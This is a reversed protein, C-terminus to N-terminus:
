SLTWRVIVIFQNWKTLLLFEQLREIESLNISIELQGAHYNLHLTSKIAALIAWFNGFYLCTSYYIPAIEYKQLFNVSYIKFTEFDAMIEIKSFKRKEGINSASSCSKSAGSILIIKNKKCVRSEIFSSFLFPSFCFFLVFYLNLRFVSTSAGQLNTNRDVM